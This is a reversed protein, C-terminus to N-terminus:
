AVICSSPNPYYFLLSIMMIRVKGEYVREILPLWHEELQRFTEEQSLDYVLVIADVVEMTGEMIARDGSQSDVITTICSSRPDPPLQVRSMIGPVTTSFQRSVFTSILSSKGVGESLFFNSIYSCDLSEIEICFLSCRFLTDSHAWAPLFAFLGNKTEFHLLVLALSSKGDGLTMINISPRLDARNMTQQQQQQQKPQLHQRQRFSMIQHHQTM